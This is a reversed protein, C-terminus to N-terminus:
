CAHTGTSRIHNGSQSAAVEAEIDQATGVADDITTTSSLSSRAAAQAYSSDTESTGDALGTNVIGLCLSGALVTSALLVTVKQHLLPTHKMAFRKVTARVRRGCRVALIRNDLCCTISMLTM